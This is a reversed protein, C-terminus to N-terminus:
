LFDESPMDAIDKGKIDARHAFGELKMASHAEFLNTTIGTVAAGLSEIFRGASTTPICNINRDIM